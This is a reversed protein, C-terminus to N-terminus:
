KGFQRVTLTLTEFGRLVLKGVYITQNMYFWVKQLRFYFVRSVLFEYIEIEECSFDLIGELSCCAQAVKSIYFFGTNHRTRNPVNEICINFSIQNFWLESSTCIVLTCNLLTNQSVSILLFKAALLIIQAINVSCYSPVYCCTM